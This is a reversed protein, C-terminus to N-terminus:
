MVKNKMQADTLQGALAYAKERGWGGSWTGIVELPIDDDYKVVSYIGFYDCMHDTELFKPNIESDVEYHIRSM